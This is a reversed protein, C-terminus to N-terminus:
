GVLASSGRGDARKWCIRSAVAEHDEVLLAIAASTDLLAIPLDEAGTDTAM